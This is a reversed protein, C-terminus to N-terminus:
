LSQPSRQRHVPHRGQVPPSDLVAFGGQIIAKGEMHSILGFGCNDRFEGPEYLGRVLKSNQQM